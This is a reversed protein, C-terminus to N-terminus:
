LNIAARPYTAQRPLRSSLRLGFLLPTLSCFASVLSKNIQEQECKKRKGKEM